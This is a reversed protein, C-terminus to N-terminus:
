LNFEALDIGAYVHDVAEGFTRHFVIEHHRGTGVGPADEETEFAGLAEAQVGFAVQDQAYLAALKSIFGGLQVLPQAFPPDGHRPAEHKHGVVMDPELDSVIYLVFLQHDVGLQDVRSVEAAAHFVLDVRDRHVPRLLGIHGAIGARGHGAGAAKGGSGRGAAM